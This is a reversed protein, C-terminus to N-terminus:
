PNMYRSLSHYQHLLTKVWSRYTICCYMYCMYLIQLQFTPLRIISQPKGLIPSLDFNTLHFKSPSCKRMRAGTRDKWRWSLDVLLTKPNPELELEECKEALTALHPTVICIYSCMYICYVFYDLWCVLTRM